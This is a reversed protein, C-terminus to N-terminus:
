ISLKYLFARDMSKLIVLNLKKGMQVVILVEIEVMGAVESDMVAEAVETDMEAEAVETDM